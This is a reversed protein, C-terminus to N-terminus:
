SYSVLINWLISHKSTSIEDDVSIYCYVYFFEHPGYGRLIRSPIYRPHIPTSEFSDIPDDGQTLHRATSPM